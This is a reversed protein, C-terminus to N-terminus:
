AVDQPRHLRICTGYELHTLNFLHLTFDNRNKFEFQEGVCEIEPKFLYHLQPIQVHTVLCHVQTKFDELGLFNALVQVSVVRLQVLELETVRAIPVPDAQLCEVQHTQMKFYM